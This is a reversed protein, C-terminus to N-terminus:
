RGYRLYSYALFSLIVSGLFGAFFGPPGALRLGVVGAAVGVAAVALVLFFGTQWEEVFAVISEGSM